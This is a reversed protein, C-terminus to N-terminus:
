AARMLATYIGNMGAGNPTKVFSFVARAVTQTSRVDYTRITPMARGLFRFIAPPDKEIVHYGLFVVRAEAKM